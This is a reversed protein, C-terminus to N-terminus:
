NRELKSKTNIYKRYLKDLIEKNPIFLKEAIGLYQHSQINNIYYIIWIMNIDTINTNDLLLLYNRDQYVERIQPTIKLIISTEKLLLKHDYIIRKWLNDNNYYNSKKQDIIKRLSM